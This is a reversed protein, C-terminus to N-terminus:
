GPGIRRLAAHSASLHEPLNTDVAIMWETGRLKTARDRGLRGRSARGAALRKAEELLEPAIDVTTKMHPVMDGLGPNDVSTHQGVRSAPVAYTM